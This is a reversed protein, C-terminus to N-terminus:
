GKFSSTSLWYLGGGFDSFVICVHIILGTRFLVFMYFVSNEIVKFYLKKFFFSAKKLIVELLKKQKTHFKFCSIKVMWVTFFQRKRGRTSTGVDDSIAIRLLVSTFCKCYYTLWFTIFRQILYFYMYQVEAERNKRELESREVDTIQSKIYGGDATLIKM